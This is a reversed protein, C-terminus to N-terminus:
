CHLDPCRAKSGSATRRAWRPRGDEQTPDDRGWPKGLPAQAQRMKQETSNPIQGPARSDSM